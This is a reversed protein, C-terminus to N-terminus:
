LIAKYVTKKGDKDKAVRDTDVLKKVLATAKQTSAIEDFANVIDTATFVAGENSVMFDYIKEVLEKNEKQVKTEGTRKKSILEIQRDLFNIFEEERETGKVYNKLENFYDKKTMKEM